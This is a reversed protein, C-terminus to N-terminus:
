KKNFWTLILTDVTHKVPVTILEGQAYVQSIGPPPLGVFDVKPNQLNFACTFSNRVVFTTKNVTSYELNAISSCSCGKGAIWFEGGVKEFFFGTPKRQGVRCIAYEGGSVIGAGHHSTVVSAQPWM